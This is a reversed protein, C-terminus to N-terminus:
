AVSQSRRKCKCVCTMSREPIKEQVEVCVLPVFFHSSLMVMRLSWTFPENENDLHSVVDSANMFEHVWFNTESM